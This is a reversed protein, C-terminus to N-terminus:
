FLLRCEVCRMEDMGARSFFVFLAARLQGHMFALSCGSSALDCTEQVDCSCIFRRSWVTSGPCTCYSMYLAADFCLSNNKIVACIKWKVICWSVRCRQQYTSYKCGVTLRRVSKYTRAHLPAPPLPSAKFYIFLKSSTLLLFQLIKM